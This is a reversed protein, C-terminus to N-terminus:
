APHSEQDRKEANRPDKELSEPVASSLRCSGEKVDKPLIRPSVVSPRLCRKCTPCEAKPQCHEANPPPVQSVAQRRLVGSNVLLSPGAPDPALAAAEPVGVSSDLVRGDILDM